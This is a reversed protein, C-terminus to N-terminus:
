LSKCSQQDTSISRAHSGIRHIQPFSHNSGDITARRSILYHVRQTDGLGGYSAIESQSSLCSRHCGLRRGFTREQDALAYLVSSSQPLLEFLMIVSSQLSMALQPLALLSILDGDGGHAPSYAPETPREFFSDPHRRVFRDLSFHKALHSSPGLSGALNTNTSSHPVLM